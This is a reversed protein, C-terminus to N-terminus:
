LCTLHTVILIAIRDKEINEYMTFIFIAARQLNLFNWNIGQYYQVISSNRISVFEIDESFLLSLQFKSVKLM